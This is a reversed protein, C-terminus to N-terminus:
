NEFDFIYSYQNPADQITCNNRQLCPGRAGIGPCCDEAVVPDNTTSTCRGACRTGRSARNLAHAPRTAGMLLEDTEEAAALGPVPLLSASAEKDEMAWAWVRAMSGGTSSTTDLLEIAPLAVESSSHSAAARDRARSGTRRRLLNGLATMLTETVTRAAGEALGEEARRLRAERTGGHTQAADKASASAPMSQVESTPAAATASTAGGEAASAGPDEDDDDDDDDADAEAPALLPEL